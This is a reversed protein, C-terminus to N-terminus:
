AVASGELEMTVKLQEIGGRVMVQCVGQRDSVVPENECEKAIVERVWVALKALNHSEDSGSCCALRIMEYTWHDAYEAHSSPLQGGPAYTVLVMGGHSRSAGLVTVRYAGIRRVANVEGRALYQLAGDTLGARKDASTYAAECEAYSKFKRKM